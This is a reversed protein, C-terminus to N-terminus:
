EPNGYQHDNTEAAISVLLVLLCDQILGVPQSQFTQLFFADSKSPGEQWPVAQFSLGRHSAQEEGCVSVSFKWTQVKVKLGQTNSAQTGQIRSLNHGVQQPASTGSPEQTWLYLGPCASLSKM